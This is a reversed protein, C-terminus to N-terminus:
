TRAFEIFDASSDAAVHAPMHRTDCDRARNPRPRHTAASKTRELAAILLTLARDVIVAPDSDAV